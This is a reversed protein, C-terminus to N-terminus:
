NKAQEELDEADDDFGNIEAAKSIWNSYEGAVHLVQKAVEVPDQTKYAKRMEEAKLDPYITSEVAIRAMFRASDLEEGVVKNNKIKKRMSTKELEDVRDTTIPKFKFPIINGKGDKFRRSIFSEIEEVEEAKGPMFFSLDLQNDEEQTNEKQKTENAM